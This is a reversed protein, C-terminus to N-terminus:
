SAEATLDLSEAPLNRYPELLASVDVADREGPRHLWGELQTLLPGAERDARLQAFALGAETGELHLRKRWYNLLGRELKAIENSALKGAIAGEVLPRLRDALTERTPGVADIKKTRPFFFSAAIGLLGLVWLIGLIWLLARYGGLQPPRDLTLKNPEVQGPPRIPKVEVITPPLSSTPKGDKRQLFDCLNYTGVDLGYWSLDYRFDTGHPYVAVIRIVVPTKRNDIPKPELEPGPLILGDWTMSVGVTTTTAPKDNDGAAAFLPMLLALWAMHLRMM